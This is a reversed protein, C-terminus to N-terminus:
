KKLLVVAILAAGGLLVFPMYDPQQRYIPQQPQQQGGLGGLLSSLIGGAGGPLGAAASGGGTLAALGAQGAIQTAVPNQQFQGLLSGFFRTIGSDSVAMPGYQPKAYGDLLQLM